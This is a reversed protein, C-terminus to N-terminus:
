DDEEWGGGANTWINEWRTTGCPRCDALIYKEKMWEVRDRIGIVAPVRKGKSM